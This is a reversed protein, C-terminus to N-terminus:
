FSFNVNGTSPDLRSIKGDRETIWLQNDKWIMEWPYNLGKKVIRVSANSTSGVNEPPQEQLEFKKESCSMWGLVVLFIAFMNKMKTYRCNKNRKRFIPLFSFKM